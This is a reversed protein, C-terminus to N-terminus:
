VTYNNNGWNPSNRIQKRTYDNPRKKKQTKKKPPAPLFFHLSFFFVKKCLHFIKKGETIREKEM